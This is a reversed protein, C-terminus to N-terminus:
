AKDYRKKEQIAKLEKNKLRLNQKNKELKIIEQKTKKLQGKFRGKNGRMFYLEVIERIYFIYEKSLKNM